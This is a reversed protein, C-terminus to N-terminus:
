NSSNREGNENKPFNKEFVFWNCEENNYSAYNGRRRKRQLRPAHFQNSGHWLSYRREFHRGNVPMIQVFQKRQGKSTKEETRDFCGGNTSHEDCLVASSEISM